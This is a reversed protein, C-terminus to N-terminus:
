GQPNGIRRLLASTEAHTHRDRIRFAFGFRLRAVLINCQQGLRQTMANRITAANKDTKVICCQKLPKHYNMPGVLQKLDNRVREYDAERGASNELDFTVLYYREAM